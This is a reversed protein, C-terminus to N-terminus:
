LHCKAGLLSQKNEITNLKKKKSLANYISHIVKLVYINKNIELDCSSKKIKHNLFEKLIKKHGTGMGSIPGLGLPFNESHKNSVIFKFDKFIQYTNLSIGKVLSRGKEGIVDLASLYDRNARTTAKFSSAINNKHIFNILILDEAELKKKNYAAYVDFYKIPGFIYILMDLLHIAQNNLVGGDSIYKGRWSTKYYKKNRHWYLACDVLVLNM